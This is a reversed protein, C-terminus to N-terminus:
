KKVAYLFGDFGKEGVTHITTAEVEEDDKIYRLLARVSEVSGSTNEVDAVRGSLGVNDVIIVGGARVLRKAEVFYNTNNRKDADIFVLDFPPEPRMAQMSAHAPGLIVKVKPSLGAFRVNEEITEARLPNLELAVVKGDDPLARAMWIASYGGLSGVELVRKAGISRLLLNLFKGLAPSVAMQYYIGKDRTNKQVAELVEDPKLLFTNHYQDARAWLALNSESNINPHPPSNQTPQHPSSVRAKTGFSLLNRPTIQVRIYYRCQRLALRGVYTTPKAM